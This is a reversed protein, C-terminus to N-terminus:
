LGYDILHGDIHGILVFQDGIKVYQAYEAAPLQYSEVTTITIPRELKTLSRTFVELDVAIGALHHAVVDAYSRNVWYTRQSGSVVIKMEVYNRRIYEGEFSHSGISHAEIMDIYDDPSYYLQVASELKIEVTNENIDDNITETECTFINDYKPCEKCSLPPRGPMKVVKEVITPTLPKISEIKECISSFHQITRTIDSSEAPKFTIHADNFVTSVAFTSASLSM